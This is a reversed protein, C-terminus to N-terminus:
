TSGRRELLHECLRELFPRQAPNIKEGAAELDFFEARDIEPFQQRRGSKPPWELEFTNSVITAPDCNGVFAWATVRKGGKQQVEGLALFGEAPTDLGTEESFERRAAALPDEEEDVLGKPISGAGADKNRFFPGGPHALLVRVAGAELKYM